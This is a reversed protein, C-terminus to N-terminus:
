FKYGEPMPAPAQKLAAQARDLAQTLVNDIETVKAVDMPGFSYLKGVNQIAKVARNVRRTAADALTARVRTKKKKAGPTSIEVM